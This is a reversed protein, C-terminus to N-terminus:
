DRTDPDIGGEDATVGRRSRDPRTKTHSMGGSGPVDKMARRTLALAM